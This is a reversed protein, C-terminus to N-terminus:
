LTYFKSIFSDLDSSDALGLITQNVSNILPYINKEIM